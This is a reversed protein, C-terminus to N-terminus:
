SHYRNMAETVRGEMLLPLAEVGKEIAEEVQKLEEPRFPSLVYDAPDQRPDRGIGIRLRLFRDTGIAEIISAVGRHGGSGGQARIRITGCPLDLDDYIVILDLPTSGSSQLLSRVSRGSRNMYTQPKALLLDIEGASSSWRGSGVKAEGQKQSLSFGHRRAFADLLWFGVNHKTEEYEPGPNGLGVILKM